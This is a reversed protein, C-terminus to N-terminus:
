NIAYKNVEDSIFKLDDWYLTLKNLTDIKFSGLARYNIKSYQIKKFTNIFDDSKIINKFDDIYNNVIFEELFGYLTYFLNLNFVDNFKIDRLDNLWDKSIIRESIFKRKNVEILEYININKDLFNLINNWYKNEIEEVFWFDKFSYRHKFVLDINIKDIFNKIINKEKERHQQFNIGSWSNNFNSHSTLTHVIESFKEDSLIINDDLLKIVGIIFKYIKNVYKEHKKMDSTLSVDIMNWYYKEKNNALFELLELYNSQFINKLDDFKKTWELYDKLFEKRTIKLLNDYFYYYNSLEEISFINKWFFDFFSKKIDNDLNNRFDNFKSRDIFMIWWPIDQIDKKIFELCENPYELKFLSIIFFLQLNIEDENYRNLEDIYTYLFRFYRKIWRINDPLLDLFNEIYKFWSFDKLLDNKYKNWFLYKTSKNLDDIYYPIDIIKELFNYWENWTYHSNSKKIWESLKIPDASVILNVIWKDVQSIRSLWLLIDPLFEPKLRDLDDVIILTKRWILKKYLLYLTLFVADINSSIESIFNKSFAYKILWGIITTIFLWIISWILTKSELLQDLSVNFSQSFSKSFSIIFSIFFTLIILFAIIILTNKFSYYTIDKLFWLWKKIDELFFKYVEKLNTVNPIRLFVVKYRKFVFKWKHEDNFKEYLNKLITTKWSWWKWYLWIKIWWSKENDTIVKYLDNVVFNRWFIDDVNESNTTELLFIPIKM